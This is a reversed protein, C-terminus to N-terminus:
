AAVRPKLRGRLRDVYQGAKEVAARMAALEEGDIEGDDELAEAMETLLACMATFGARDNMAGADLPVLKMGILALAENAFRGNWTECGRLFATVPMEAFGTRYAKGSDQGSKGLFAALEKDTLRDQEKIDSLANALAAILDSGSARRYRPPITGDSM